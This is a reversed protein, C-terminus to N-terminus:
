VSCSSSSRRLWCRLHPRRPTPPAYLQDHQPMCSSCGLACCVHTTINAKHPRENGCRRLNEARIVAAAAAAAAAALARGHGHDQPQRQHLSRSARSRSSSSLSRYMSVRFRSRPSIRCFRAAAVTLKSAQRINTQNTTHNDAQTKNAQKNTQTKYDLHRCFFQPHLSAAGNATLQRRFAMRRCMATFARSATDAQMLLLQRGSRTGSQVVARSGPQAVARSGSQQSSRARRRPSSRRCSLLAVCALSSSEARSSRALSCRATLSARLVCASSRSRKVRVRCSCCSRSAAACCDLSVAWASSSASCRAYLSARASTSRCFTLPALERECQMEFAAQWNNKYRKGAWSNSSCGHQGPQQQQQELLERGRLQKAGPHAPGPAAALQARWALQPHV